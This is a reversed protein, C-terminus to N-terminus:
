GPLWCARPVRDSRWCVERRQNQGEYAAPGLAPRRTREGKRVIPSGESSTLEGGAARRFRLLVVRAPHPLIRRSRQSTERRTPLNGKPEGDQRHVRRKQPANRSPPVM